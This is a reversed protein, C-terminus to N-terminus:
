RDGDREHGEAGHIGHADVAALHQQLHPARGNGSV